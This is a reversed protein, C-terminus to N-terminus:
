SKKFVYLFLGIESNCSVQQTVELNFRYLSVAAKVLIPYLYQRLYKSKM